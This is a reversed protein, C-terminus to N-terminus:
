GVLERLEGWIEAGERTSFQPRELDVIKISIGKDHSFKAAFYKASERRDYCRIMLNCQQNTAYWSQAGFEDVLFKRIEEILDENPVVLHVRIEPNGLIEVLCDCEPMPKDM